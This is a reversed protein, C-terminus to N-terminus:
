TKKLFKDLWDRLALCEDQKLEIHSHENSGIRPVHFLVAIEGEKEDMVDVSIALEEGNRNKILTSDINKIPM